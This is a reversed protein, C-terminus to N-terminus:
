GSVVALASGFKLGKTCITFILVEKNDPDLSHGDLSYSTEFFLIRIQLM